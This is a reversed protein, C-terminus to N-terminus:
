QVWAFDGPKELGSLTGLWVIGDEILLSWYPM